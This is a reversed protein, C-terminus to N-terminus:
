VPATKVLFIERVLVPEAGGSVVPSTVKKREKSGQKSETTRAGYLTEMSVRRLISGHEHECERSNRRKTLDNESAM